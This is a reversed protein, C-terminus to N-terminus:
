QFAQIFTQNTPNQSNAVVILPDGAASNDLWVTCHYADITDVLHEQGPYGRGVGVPAEGLELCIPEGEIGTLVLGYTPDGQPPVVWVFSAATFDKGPEGDLWGLELIGVRPWSGVQESATRYSVVPEDQTVHPRYSVMEGPDLIHGARLEDATLQRPEHESPHTNHGM